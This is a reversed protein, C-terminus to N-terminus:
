QPVVAAEPNDNAEKPQAQAPEPNQAPASTTAEAPASTSGSQAKTSSDSKDAKDSKSAKVLKESKSPKDSKDAKEAKETKEAKDNKDAVKRMSCCYMLGHVESANRYGTISYPKEPDCKRAMSVNLELEVEKHKDGNVFDCFLGTANAARERLDHKKKNTSCGAFVVAFLALTMFSKILRGQGLM